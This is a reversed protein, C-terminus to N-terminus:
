RIYCPCLIFLKFRNLQQLSHLEVRLDNWASPGVVSFARRQVTALHALPVLVGLVEGRASSRLMWRAALFRCQAASTVFALPPAAFSVGSTVFALPPAAFSVSPSWRLLVVNYGSLSLYGIYYM